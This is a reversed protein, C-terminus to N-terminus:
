KGTEAINPPYNQSYPPAAYNTGGPARRMDPQWRPVSGSMNPPFGSVPMRARRYPTEAQLQRYAEPSVFRYGNEPLWRDPTYASGSGSSKPWPRDPSFVDMAQKGALDSKSEAQQAKHNSGPRLERGSEYKEIDLKFVAGKVTFDSLATSMYPGPPPPPVREKVLQERDPWQPFKYITQDYGAQDVSGSSEASAATACTLLLCFMVLQQARVPKSDTNLGPALKCGYFM